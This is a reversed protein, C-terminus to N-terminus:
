RRASPTRASPRSSSTPRERRCTPIRNASTVPVLELKVGLKDAILRAVDIDLGQPQLDTGVFGYPASDTPVAVALVKKQLVDDLVDARVPLTALGALAAAALALIRLLPRRSAKPMADLRALPPAAGGHLTRVRRARAGPIFSPVISRPRAELIRGPRGTADIYDPKVVV